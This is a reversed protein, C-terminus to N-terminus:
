ATWGQVVCYCFEACDEIPFEHDHGAIFAALKIPCIGTCQAGCMVGKWWDGSFWDAGPKGCTDYCKEKTWKEIYDFRDISESWSSCDGSTAAWGFSTLSTGEGGMNCGGDHWWTFYLCGDTKECVSKCAEWSDTRDGSGIRNELGINVGQLSNCTGSTDRITHPHCFCQKDYGPWPDGGFNSNSCKVGENVNSKHNSNYRASVVDAWDAQNCSLAGTCKRTYVVNGHCSCWGGENACHRTGSNAWDYKDPSGRLLRGRPAPDEAQVSAEEVQEPYTTEIYEREPIPYAAVAAEVIECEDSVCRELARTLQSSTFGGLSELAFGVEAGSSQKEALSGCLFMVFIFIISDMIGKKKYM